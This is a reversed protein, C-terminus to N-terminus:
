SLNERQLTRLNTSAARIGRVLGAQVQVRDVGIRSLVAIPASFFGLGVLAAAGGATMAVATKTGRAFSRSIAQELSQKGVVAKGGELTAIVIFPLGPLITDAIEEVPTSFIDSMPELIQQQLEESTIDSTLISDTATDIADDTALIRFDPYRELADKIYGLNTTAKLQLLEDISGDANSIGLDWGPQSIDPALYATQGEVLTIGGVMQGANLEDRVSVEFLKGKWNNLVGQLVASDEGATAANTMRTVLDQGPFVLDFSEQMEPTVAAINFEDQDLLSQLAVAATMADVLADPSPEMRRQALADVAGPVPEGDRERYSSAILRLRDDM